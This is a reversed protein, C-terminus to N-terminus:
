QKKYGELSARDRVEPDTYGGVRGWLSRQFYATMRLFESTSVDLFSMHWMPFSKQARMLPVFTNNVSRLWAAPDRHTLIFKADPYAAVLEKVFFASVDVIAQNECPPQTLLTENGLTSALHQSSLQPLHSPHNVGNDAFWKDFDERGYPKGDGDMQAAM